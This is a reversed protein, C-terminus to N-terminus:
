RATDVSPPHLPLNSDDKYMFLGDDRGIFQEMLFEMLVSDLM